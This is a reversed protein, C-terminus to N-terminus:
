AFTAQIKPSRKKLYNIVITLITLALMVYANYDYSHLKLLFHGLLCTNKLVSYEPIAFFGAVVIRGFMGM